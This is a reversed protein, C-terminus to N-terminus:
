KWQWVAMKASLTRELIPTAVQGILDDKLILGM